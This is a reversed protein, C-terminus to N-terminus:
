RLYKDFVQQTLAVLNDYFYSEFFELEERTLDAADMSLTKQTIPYKGQWAGTISYDGYRQSPKQLFLLYQQNRQMPMNDSTSSVILINKDKASPHISYYELLIREDGKKLGDDSLIVEDIRITTMTISTGEPLDPNPESNIATAKVIAVSIAEIQSIDKKVFNPSYKGGGPVFIVEEEAMLTLNDVGNQSETPAAAAEDVQTDQQVIPSEQAAQPANPTCGATFLILCLM